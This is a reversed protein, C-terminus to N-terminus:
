PRRTPRQSPAHVPRRRLAMEDLDHQDERQQEKLHDAMEKASFRDVVELDRRSRLVTQLSEAALAAADALQQWSERCRQELHIRYGDQQALRSAPCGHRLDEQVEQHLRHLADLCSELREEAARRARLARAHAQLAAEERRQRLDRLSAVRSRFRKM